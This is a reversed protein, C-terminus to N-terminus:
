RQPNPVHYGAKHARYMIGLRTPETCSGWGQPSPVHDGAKHARYMIGLRTLETCSGWGHPRSVHDGAKHARYMIGLQTPETCHEIAKIGHGYTKMYGRRLRPARLAWPLDPPGQGGPPPNQPPRRGRWPPKDRSLLERFAYMCEWVRGWWTSSSSRPVGRWCHRLLLTTRVDKGDQCHPWSAM